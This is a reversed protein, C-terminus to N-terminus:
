SVSPIEPIFNFLGIRPYGDRFDLKSVSAPEPYFCRMKGYDFGLTSCIAAAIPDGHSVLLANGKCQRRISEISAHMRSMLHSFSEGNDYRQRDYPNGYRGLVVNLKMGEWSGVDAGTLDDMVRVKLKHPKSITEATELARKLPSSYICEFDESELFRSVGRAQDKGKQSLGIDNRGRLRGEVNWKSLGHRVLFLAHRYKIPAPARPAPAILNKSTLCDMIRDVSSAVSLVTTEVTVEPHLPIEYRDGKGTFNKVLGRNAKAYLGKPDRQICVELPCSVYVEVFHTNEGRVFERSKEYPSVFSAVVNIGHKTLLKCVHSIRQLHQVRASPEFGTDFGPHKRIEDGDLMETKYGRRALERALAAGITSKGSGPLGTLWVVFGEKAQDM